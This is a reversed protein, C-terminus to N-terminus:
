NVSVRQLTFTVGGANGVVNGSADKVNASVSHTGRDINSVSISTASGSGIPKGDMSIEVVHGSQLAPKIDLRVSVTGGNDRITENAKPSIIKVVEYRAQEAIEDNDDDNDDSAQDSPPASYTQLPPLKLEKAGKEQPRDSYKVTGDPLIWKYIKASTMAPALFLVVSLAVLPIHLM